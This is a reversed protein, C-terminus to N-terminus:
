MRGRAVSGFYDPAGVQGGKFNIEREHAPSGPAHVRCLPAGPALPSLMTVAEVGLARAAYSSSDGGALVLRRVSTNELAARAILGLAKGLISSDASAVGPANPGKTSYAVVSKGAKLQSVVAHIPAELSAGGLIAAVDLHVEEFGNALAWDIQGATVPSCSGSIVLLPSAPGPDPWQTVPRLRGQRAWFSGLAMEIGSSGVSFLPKAATAYADLLVGIRTLHSADLADFLVIDPSNKLLDDLSARAEEDSHSLQLIDLLAISKATQKALHLRLDGEDTPTTPHRSMSPHRDLRYIAGESGIGMRAFLNGFVCYRGLPPAGVLLPVFRARFIERGIDIAKGISGIHPSSDFTSCVKYHIHPSGLKRLASFAPRLEAEMAAPPMSRSLGAVGLARLGPHAALQAVTPPSLFLATKIGSRTLFELADTSGTFDDGYYALRLDSATRPM